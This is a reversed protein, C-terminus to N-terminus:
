YNSVDGKQGNGVIGVINSRSIKANDLAQKVILPNTKEIRVVMVIGDAHPALLSTDATGVLSPTDYIVLDFTSHFDAMLRRWKESSLLKTPDSTMPGSTILHLESMSPIQRIVEEMSLNTTILNSLGWLNNLNSLTHIVPQRLDADILLVRQGMEAAVQALHFAITSKGDGPMASSIIISRMPRDSSMLQINTHLVRLAELFQVSCQDYDKEAVVTLESIEKSLSDSARVIPIDQTPNQAQNSQVAKDFPINGLLPLKIKEKLDVATRYTNDLKDLLLAVGVGLLLSAVLGLILNRKTDSASVPMDFVSPAQLLQWGLETQSIQIQLNERTSLFRNLSETAIQLKRQLETYQRSLIPFQKRQLEVQREIKALEQSQVELNQFQTAIESFKVGLLRQSEQNLLPLLSARKEKLTKLSPNDDQLRVSEMAIQVDLQRIQSFLQQYIPSNNLTAKEGDKGRLIAVNARTQVLELNLAQRRQALQSAQAALQTAQNEPDNFGYKQRFIQVDKQIKNVRNQIAPLEKEVFNEGQRLKTQRRKQSYELYDKAIKDLVFQIQKPDQGRYRVEIIKTDGLRFIKLSNLLYGYSIDPYTIQVNKVISGMIEPSKLVLIQSEYDLSSQNSNSSKVIEDVIKTDDNIPEVLLRFGGEFEPPKRNFAISVVVITILTISVGAIVLARRKVLSIFEPFSWGGEQEEAWPLPQAELSLPVVHTGDSSSSQYSRNNM